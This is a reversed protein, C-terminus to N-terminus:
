LAWVAVLLLGAMPLLAPGGTAPMPQAVVGDDQALAAPAFVALALTAILAM